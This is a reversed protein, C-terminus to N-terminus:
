RGTMEDMGGGGAEVVPIGDQARIRRPTQGGASTFVARCEQLLEALEDWRTVGGGAEPADRTEVLAPPGDSQPEFIWFLSAEGVHQNILAGEHSALAVYPRRENPNAPGAATTRLLEM